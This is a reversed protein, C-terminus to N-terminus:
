PTHEDDESLEIVAKKFDRVGRGLARGIEPLRQPGFIVLAVVLIVMLETTGIRSGLLLIVGLQKSVMTKGNKAWFFL